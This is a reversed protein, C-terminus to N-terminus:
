NDPRTDPMTARGLIVSVYVPSTDAIDRPRTRHGTLPIFVVDHDPASIRLLTEATDIYGTDAGFTRLTGAAEFQHDFEARGNEDTTVSAAPGAAIRERLKNWGLHYPGISAETEYLEVTAGAIPQGRDWDTIEVVVTLPQIGVWHVDVILQPVVVVTTLLVLGIVVWSRKPLMM